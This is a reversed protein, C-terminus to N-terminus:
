SVYRGIAFKSTLLLLLGLSGIAIAARARPRDELLLSLVLFCPFAAIAYRGVGIFSASSLLPIGSVAAAYVGYGLGIRRATPISLLLFTVGLVGHALAYADRHKHVKATFFEVKLWTRWGPEQNWLTQTEVHAFANGFALHLYLMYGLLGLASLAPVLDRVRLRGTQRYGLELQRVTLGLILAPGVPRTAAALAGLLAAAWPRRHELLLFAGIALLLFVADSYMAGYLFFALPYVALALTAYGSVEAPRASVAEARSRAWRSYLFIAALGCGLSILIGAVYADLGLAHLARILLPYVPFFAVPSQREPDFWYGDVAILHYWSADWRLWADLFPWDAFERTFVGQKLPLYRASLAGVVWCAAAVPLAVAWCRRGCLLAGVRSAARSAFSVPAAPAVM